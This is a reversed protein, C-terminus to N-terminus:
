EGLYKNLPDDVNIKGEEVLKMILIGTFFKGISGISSRTNRSFPVKSEEDAFGAYKEFAIAGNKTVVVTGSFENESYQKNVITAIEKEFQANATIVVIVLIILLISQKQNMTDFSRIEGEVYSPNM